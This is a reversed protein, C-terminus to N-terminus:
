GKGSFWDNWHSYPSGRYIGEQPCALSEDSLGLWCGANGCRGNVQVADIHSSDLGTGNAILRLAM